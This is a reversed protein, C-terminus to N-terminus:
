GKNILSVIWTLLTDIGYLVVAFILVFALVVGTNKLVTKFSPWTVKKLESATEKAGKALKNDKKKKEKKKKSDKTKEDTKAVADTKQPLNSQQTVQETDTASVQADETLATNQVSSTNEVVEKKSM